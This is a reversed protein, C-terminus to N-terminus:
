DLTVLSYKLVASKDLRDVTEAIYGLLKLAEEISLRHEDNVNYLGIFFKLFKDDVIGNRHSYLHRIQLIKELEKQQMEDIANLDGIQDNDAIFGKVSGRQLKELKKKAWYTIFEQIDSCDLVERVTVQQNNKLSAPNALYIEFLLDSLYIEFNDACSSFLIRM